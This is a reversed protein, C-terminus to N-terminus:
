WDLRVLAIAQEPCAPLCLGCRTCKGDIIEHKQYPRAEIANLPCVQVCVTCGSCTDLVRYAILKRDAVPPRASALAEKKVKRKPRREVVAQPDVPSALVDLRRATGAPVGVWGGPRPKGWRAWALFAALSVLVIVGGSRYIRVRRQFADRQRDFEPILLQAAVTPDTRAREKLAEVAATESSTAAVDRVHVALLGAAGVLAVTAAALGFWSRVIALPGRASM